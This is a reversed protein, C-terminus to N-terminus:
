FFLLQYQTLIKDGFFLAILAGSVLFPGFAISSGPGTRKLAILICAVLAGITYALFLSLLTLKIGLLLGICTGLLIDGSGVWRKRGAIWLAGFFIFPIAAGIFVDRITHASGPLSIYILTSLFLVAVFLDPISQTEADYFAILILSYVAITLLLLGALGAPASQIVILSFCVATVIELLPYRLSIKKKCYKCQGGLVVFSIVPLLDHWRLVQKCDPCMSRGFLTGNKPLRHLLVSGFSGFALGLAVAIFILVSTSM